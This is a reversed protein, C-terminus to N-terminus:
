LYVLILFLINLCVVAFVESSKIDARSKASKSFDCSKVAWEDDAPSGDGGYWYNGASKIGIFLWVEATVKSAKIGTGSKSYFLSDDAWDADVSSVDEGVDTPSGDEGYWCSRVSVSSM